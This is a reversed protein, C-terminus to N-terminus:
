QLTSASGGRPAKSHAMREVGSHCGASFAAGPARVVPSLGAGLPARSGACAENVQPGELAPRTWAGQTGPEAEQWGGAPKRAVLGPIRRSGLAPFEEGCLTFASLEGEQRAAFASAWLTGLPWGHWQRAVGKHAPIEAGLSLFHILKWALHERGKPLWAPCHFGASSTMGSRPPYPVRLSPPRLAQLCASALRDWVCAM